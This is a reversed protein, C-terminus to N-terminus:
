HGKEYPQGIAAPAISRGILGSTVVVTVVYPLIQLFQSPVPVNLLQFRTGLAESFGFLLAGGFAGIPTWKGFILAALAIFGKGSTMGDDFAGVTELSFWAGALGAILGSILVNFYRMKIVNIGVTDAAKPHEGVARTRLGWTTYFLVWHSLLLLVFMMYFIPKNAFLLSGIIPIDVLGPIEVRPLTVLGARSNLLYQRRIFATVGLALINIVTGSVIQDTKFTISLWGHLLAMLGGTIIAILVSIFLATHSSDMASGLFFFATFGLCAGMLMMGEIAINIIGSRECWLGALAGLAIPTALRLSEAVMTLVNTQKGAASAILVAPFIWLGALILMVIGLRRIRPVFAIIATLLYFAGMAILFSRVPAEIKPAQKGIGFTLKTIEEAEYRGAMNLLLWAGVLAVIIAISYVREWRKPLM